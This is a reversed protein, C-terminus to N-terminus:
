KIKLQTGDFVIEYAMKESNLTLSLYNLRSNNSPYFDLQTDCALVWKETKHAALIHETNNKPNSVSFNCWSKNIFTFEKSRGAHATFFVFLFLIKKM